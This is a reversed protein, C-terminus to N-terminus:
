KQYNKITNVLKDKVADGSGGFSAMGETRMRKKPPGDMGMGMMGMMGGGMMGMMCYQSLHDYFAIHYEADHKKPDNVGAGMAMCYQAWISKFAESRKQLMKTTDQISSGEGDTQIQGPTYSQLFTRLLDESHKTPDRKGGGHMDCFAIWQAKGGPDNKQIEKISAVLDTSDSNGMGAGMGTKMGAGMGAGMGMKMGAGMGSNATKKGMGAGMGMGMPTGMGKGMGGM